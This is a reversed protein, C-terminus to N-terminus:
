GEESEILRQLEESELERKARQQYAMRNWHKVPKGYIKRVRNCDDCCCYSISGPTDYHGRDMKHFRDIDAQILQRARTVIPSLM